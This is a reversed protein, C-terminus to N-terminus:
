SPIFHAHGPITQPKEFWKELFSKEIDYETTTCYNFTVAPINESAWKYLQFPTLRTMLPHNYAQGQIILTGTSM